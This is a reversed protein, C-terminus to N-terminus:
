PTYSDTDPPSPTYSDTDPPSPTYSDTDPPSPTYSDTDPPSNSDQTDSMLPPVIDRFRRMSRTSSSRTLM